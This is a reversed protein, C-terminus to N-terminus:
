VGRMRECAFAYCFFFILHAYVHFSFLDIFNLHVLMRIFLYICVSLSISYVSLTTDANFMRRLMTPRNQVHRLNLSTNKKGTM